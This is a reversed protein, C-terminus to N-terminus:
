FDVDTIQQRQMSNMSECVLMNDDVNDLILLWKELSSLRDRAMRIIHTESQYGAPATSAGVIERFGQEVGIPNSAHVWFVWTKSSQERIRHAYEIALQSKGSGALGVLAACQGPQSCRLRIRTMLKGRDVFDLNRQFPINAYPFALPEALNLNFKPTQLNCMLRTSDDEDDGRPAESIYQHAPPAGVSWHSRFAGSNIVGLLFEDKMPDEDNPRLNNWYRDEELDPVIEPHLSDHTIGGDEPIQINEFHNSELDFISQISDARSVDSNTSGRASEHQASVDSAADMSIMRLTLAMTTQLHRAIHGHISEVLPTRPPSIRSKPETGPLQQKTGVQRVDSHSCQETDTHGTATEDRKLSREVNINDQSEAFNRNEAKGKEKKKSSDSPFSQKDKFSLCCFPCQNHPWTSKIQSQQVIAQIEPQGFINAHTDALHGALDDPIRFTTSDYNCLSCIWSSTAYAGRYWDQGHVRM